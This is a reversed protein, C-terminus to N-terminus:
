LLYRKYTLSLLLGCSERVTSTTIVLRWLPRSERILEAVRTDNRAEYMGVDRPM